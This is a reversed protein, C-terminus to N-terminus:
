NEEVSRDIDLSDLVRHMVKIIGEAYDLGLRLYQLSENLAGLGRTQAPINAHRLVDSLYPNVFYTFIHDPLSDVEAAYIDAGNQAKRYPGELKEELLRAAYVDVNFDKRQEQAVLTFAAKAEALLFPRVRKMLEVKFDGGAQEAAVRLKNLRAQAGQAPFPGFLRYFVAFNDSTALLNQSVLSMLVLTTLGKQIIKM